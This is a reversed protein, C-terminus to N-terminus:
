SDPVTTAILGGEFANARRIELLVIIGRARRFLFFFFSVSAFIYRAGCGDFM